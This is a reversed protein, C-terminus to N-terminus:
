ANVRRIIEAWTDLVPLITEAKESMLSCSVRDVGM